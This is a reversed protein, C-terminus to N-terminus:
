VRNWKDNEKIWLYKNYIGIREPIVMLKENDFEGWIVGIFDNKGLFTTKYDINKGSLLNSLLSAIIWTGYQHIGAIIIYQNREITLRAFIGLDEQINQVSDLKQGKPLKDADDYAKQAPSILLPQISNDYIKIKRISYKTTINRFDEVFWCPLKLGELPWKILRKADDDNNIDELKFIMDLACNSRPACVFIANNKLLNEDITEDKKIRLLELNEEGLYTGLVGMAYFDGQNILPLPKKDYEVPFFCKYKRSKNKESEPILFFKSTTEKIISDTRLKETTEKTQSGITELKDLQSKQIIAIYITIIITVLTLIITERNFNIVFIYDKLYFVLISIFIILFSVFYKTFKRM